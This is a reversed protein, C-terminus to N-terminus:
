MVEISCEFTTVQETVEEVQEAVAVGTRAVFSGDAKHRSKGEVLISRKEGASNLYTYRWFRLEAM